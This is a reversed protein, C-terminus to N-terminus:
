RDIETRAVKTSISSAHDDILFDKFEEANYHELKIYQAKVKAASYTNACVNIHTGDMFVIIFVLM